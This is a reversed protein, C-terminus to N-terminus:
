SEHTTTTVPCNCSHKSFNPLTRLARMIITLTQKKKLLHNHKCRSSLYQSSSAKAYCFAWSNWCESEHGSHQACLQLNLTIFYTTIATKDASRQQFRLLQPIRCNTIFNWLSTSNNKSIVSNRQLLNYCCFVVETSFGKFWSTWSNWHFPKHCVLSVPGYCM